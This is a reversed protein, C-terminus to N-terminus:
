GLSDGHHYQTSALLAAKKQSPGLNALRYTLSKWLPRSLFKSMGVMVHSVQIGLPGLESQLTRATRDRAADCLASVGQSAIHYNKTLSLPEFV